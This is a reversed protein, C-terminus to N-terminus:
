QGLIALDVNSDKGLLWPGENQDYFCGCQRALVQPNRSQHSGRCHNYDERMQCAKARQKQESTM